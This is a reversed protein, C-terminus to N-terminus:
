VAAAEGDMSVADVDVARAVAAALLLVLATRSSPRMIRKVHRTSPTGCRLGEIAHRAACLM